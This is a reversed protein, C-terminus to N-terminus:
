KVSLYNEQNEEKGYWQVKMEGQKYTPDLIPRREPM